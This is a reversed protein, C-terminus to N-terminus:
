KPQLSRRLTGPEVTLNPPIHFLLEGSRDIVAYPYLIVNRIENLMLTDSLVKCNAPLPEFAIVSGNPGVISSFGLTETGIHAGIEIIADGPRCITAAIAQNRWDFYGNLAFQYAVYDSTRAQLLAGSQSRATFEYDDRIGLLRPYIMGGLRPAM